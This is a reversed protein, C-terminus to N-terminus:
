VIEKLKSLLEDIKGDTEIDENYENKIKGGLLYSRENSKLNNVKDKVKPKIDYKVVLILDDVTEYDTYLVRNGIINNKGKIPDKELIDNINKMYRQVIEMAKYLEESKNKKIQRVDLNNSREINYIAFRDITAADLTKISQDYSNMTGIIFLNKPICLKEGTNTTVEKGRQEIATMWEGLVSETNARNIEDIILVYPKDPNLNAKEALKKLSGDVLKWNGDQIRLGSIIDSYSTSSNFCIMDVQESNSYGTIYYALNRALTTKGEGPPSVLLLCGKIQLIRRLEDAKNSNDGQIKDKFEEITYTDLKKNDKNDEKNKCTNNEKSTDKVIEVKLPKETIAQKLLEATAEAQKLLTENTLNLPPIITEANDRDVQYTKAITDKLEEISEADMDDEKIPEIVENEIIDVSTEESLKESKENSQEYKTTKDEEYAIDKEPIISENNESLEMFMTLEGAEGSTTRCNWDSLKTNIGLLQNMEEFSETKYKQIGKRNAVSKKDITIASEDIVIQIDRNKKLTARLRLDGKILKYDM